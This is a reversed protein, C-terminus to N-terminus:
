EHDGDEHQRVSGLKWDEAYTTSPGIAPSAGAVVEHIVCGHHSLVFMITVDGGPFLHLVMSGTCDPHVTYTGTEGTRFGTTPDTPGPLLVGDTVGFDVQTFTGAGDFHKIGVVATVSPAGNPNLAQGVVRFGYDGTLTANSCGDNDDAQAWAMGSLALVLTAVALIGKWRWRKM